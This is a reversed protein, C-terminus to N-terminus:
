RGGDPKCQWFHQELRACSCGAPCAYAPFPADACQGYRECDGGKGGCQQWAALTGADGGAGHRGSSALIPDCQWHWQDVRECQSGSSACGAWPADQCVGREACLGGLGGCQEYDAVSAAPAGAAQQRGASGASATEAAPQGDAAAPASATEADFRAASADSQTSDSAADASDAAADAAEDAARPAASRVTLPVGELGMGRLCRGRDNGRCTGCQQIDTAVAKSVAMVGELEVIISGPWRGRTIDSGGANYGAGRWKDDKVFTHRCNEGAVNCLSNKVVHRTVRMM